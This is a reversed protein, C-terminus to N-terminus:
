GAKPLLGEIVKEVEDYTFQHNPDDWTFQKLITGDPKFLIVAPIASFDWTEYAIAPDESLRWNTFAAHQQRLFTEASAIADPEDPPDLSLSIVALGKNGFREHMKVLHPFNQKCPGCTTSWLDMVALSKGPLAAVRKTLEAFPIADLRVVEHKAAAPEAFPEPLVAAVTGSVPRVQTAKEVTTKPKPPTAPTVAPAPEPPPEPKLVNAPTPLIGVQNVSVEGCGTVLTLLCAGWIPLSPRLRQVSM